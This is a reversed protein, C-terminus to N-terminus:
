WRLFRSGLFAGLATVIVIAITYWTAVFFPSDDSCNSAYLTAGVGGAVLGAVAGAALPNSPAGQRLGILLGALPALSFLPIFSLCFKANTGIMNVSWYERPVESMEIVVAAALLLPLLLFMWAYTAPKADPRGMQLVLIFAPIALSLTAVFKFIFRPSHVISWFFDARVGLSSAFFLATAAVSALLAVTVTRSIPPSVTKNDAVLATILDDTKM